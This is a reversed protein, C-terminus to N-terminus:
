VGERELRKRERVGLVGKKREGGEEASWIIGVEAEKAAGAGPAPPSAARTPASELERAEDRFQRM